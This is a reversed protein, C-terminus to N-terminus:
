IEIDNRRYQYLDPALLERSIGSKIGEIFASSCNVVQRGGILMNIGEGVSRSLGQAAGRVYGFWPLGNEAGSFVGFPM